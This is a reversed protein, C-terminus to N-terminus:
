APGLAPSRRFVDCVLCAQPLWGRADRFHQWCPTEPNHYAPCNRRRAPSCDRQKWCPPWPALASPLMREAEAEAQWRADLRLLLYAALATVAVPLGFRLGVGLLTTLVEM